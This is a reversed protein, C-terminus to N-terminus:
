AAVGFGFMLGITNRDGSISRSVDQGHAHYGRIVGAVLESDGGLGLGGADGVGCNDRKESTGALFHRGPM